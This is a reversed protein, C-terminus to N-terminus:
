LMDVADFGVNHRTKHYKNGPNGLGVILTPKVLEPSDNSATM